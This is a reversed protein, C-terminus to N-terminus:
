TNRKTMDAKNSSLPMWHDCGWWMPAKRGAHKILLHLGSDTHKMAEIVGNNDDRKMCGHPRMNKVRKTVAVGVGFLAECRLAPAPTKKTKMSQKGARSDSERRDASFDNSLRWEM